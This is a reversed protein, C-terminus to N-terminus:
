TLLSYRNTRKTPINEIFDYNVQVLTEFKNTLSGLLISLAGEVWKRALNYYYSNFLLQILNYHNESNLM